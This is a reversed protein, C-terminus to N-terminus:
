CAMHMFSVQSHRFLQFCVSDWTLLLCIDRQVHCMQSEWNAWLERLTKAIKRFVWYQRNIEIRHGHLDSDKGAIGWKSIVTYCLVADCGVLTQGAEALCSCWKPCIQWMVWRPFLQWDWHSCAKWRFRPPGLLNGELGTSGLSFARNSSEGRRCQFHNTQCELSGCVCFFIQKAWIQLESWPVKM